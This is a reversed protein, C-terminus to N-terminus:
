RKIMVGVAGPIVVRTPDERTGIYINDRATAQDTISDDPRSCLVPKGHEDMFIDHRGEPIDLKTDKWSVAKQSFGEV